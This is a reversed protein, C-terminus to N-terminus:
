KKVFAVGDLKNNTMINAISKLYETLGDIKSIDPHKKDDIELFLVTDHKHDEYPITCKTYGKKYSNIYKQGDPSIYMGCHAKNNKEAEMIAQEGLYYANGQLHRSTICYPHPRYNTSDVGYIKIGDIDCEPLLKIIEENTKM